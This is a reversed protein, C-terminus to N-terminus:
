GQFPSTSGKLNEGGLDDYDNGFGGEQNMETMQALMQMQQQAKAADIRAQLTKEDLDPNIERIAEEIDILGAELKKLVRDLIRDKNVISPSAFEIDVNHERGYFNLTTELLRNIPLKFIARAQTIFAISIDDESDIQTATMQVAGQALFSSLIKPSMGWKVAIRKLANEQILEWQDPRLEFQAVTVSNDEANNGPVTEYKDSYGTLPNNAFLSGLGLTAGPSTHDRADSSWSGDDAKPPIEVKQPMPVGANVDGLSMAKPVYVTGKGLYMDRLSYAEAVEYIVLDDVVPVLLSRGFNTGTPISIDGDDNVLVEVGLSDKFPLKHPENIRILSYDRKILKRIEEPVETWGVSSRGIGSSMTNNLSRGEARHVRFEVMPIRDGKRELTTFTGDPNEKVKGKSYEYFRRETLYYQTPNVETQTKTRTDTYTRLLFEADHVDNSADALYFCNDFRVAEWWVKKKENLTARTNAKLLSTGIGESFAIANKVAKKINNTEAWESVFDLTDLAQQTKDGHVKFILKEGTITRALGNILSGGIHTSMIGSGDWHIRPVYGDLWQCATLIYRYAYDKYYGAIVACFLASNTYSYTQNVASAVSSQWTSVNLPQVQTEVQGEPREQDAM